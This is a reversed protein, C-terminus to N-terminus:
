AVAEYLIRVCERGTQYYGYVLLAQVYNDEIAKLGADVESTAAALQVEGPKWPISSANFQVLNIVSLWGNLNRNAKYFKEMESSVLTPDLSPSTPIKKSMSRVVPTFKLINGLKSSQAGNIRKQTIANRESDSLIAVLGKSKLINAM